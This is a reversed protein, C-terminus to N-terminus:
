DRKRNQYDPNKYRSYGDRLIVKHVVAPQYSQAEIVYDDIDAPITVIDLFNATYSFEPRSKSYIKVQEGDVVTVVTFQGNNKGEYVAHTDMEIRRTEYYMLETRGVVYEKYGEGEGILIPDIAINDRVWKSDREFHLVQEANKTHIPRTNGDKDKRNYDYVKYTYSGITLSGLELILQNRGSAHVTGAPLMIQRGPVSDLGNIYKQYDIMEHSTESDKALQLFERGDGCFGCYTKAGHGTAVVYYAEDQRGFEDYHDIVFDEDPHVQVSMNGNSHWTDDYNFRVPFYGEFEDLCRQGMIELGKKQVFTSFPFDVAKGAVDVVISVEMPIFDFIWAINGAIDGPIKRVKRILEGGWIGELYVPKARFPHKALQTLIEDMTAAAMMMYHDDWNGLLYFDLLNEQLLERRLKVAVEYDVYYNRRMLLNFPRGERDGINVVKKERARIAAVKPTVDVYGKVQAYPRLASCLSGLGYLVAYGDGLGALVREAKELDVFDDMRGRYLRGFLLVPDDEYNLPLSERTLAEIEEQSKYLERMDVLKVQHGRTELEDRVAKVLLDFPASVYGDLALLAAGAEANSEMAAALRGALEETHETVDRQIEDTLGIRNVAQTDDYALPKFMFSM